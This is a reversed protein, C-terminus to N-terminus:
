GSTQAECEKLRKPSAFETIENETACLRLGAKRSAELIRDQEQAREFNWGTNLLWEFSVESYLGELEKVTKAAEDLKGLEALSAAKWVLMSPSAETSAAGRDVADVAEQYRGTFFLNTVCDSYYWDPPTPNLRFSRDCMEAGEEPKGLFAMTDAAMNLIDASSPNLELARNTETMAEANKGLTGLTWALLIHANADYPDLRIATRALQEMEVSAENWNRRYKSLEQVLWAKQVYARAFNPDRAIAREAYEIGELTGAETGNLFSNYALVTLDYAQLDEPLKRRAAAQMDTLLLDSGAVASATHEAVESQVAFIDEAPRDWRDSWVNTGSAVDILQATVRIRDGARQISGELLYRVGLEDGIQRVDTARTRYAELSNRAIIDFDRYRTLDTIIDDTLGEALRGSVADSGLNVFPLVAISPKQTTVVHAPRPWYHYAAAGLGAAVVLVAAAIPIRLRQPITWAREPAETISGDLRVTYSRVPREMNKVHQEGAFDLPLGLKGQLHDFATGSILVGGPQCKQELRAAINVADGLLDDGDVVVDGLNVGIRLVLLRAPSAGPEPESALEKQVAVACAVADVVSGFEVLVGDGMSKVVRGSHTAVLPDVIEARLAKVAALTAAEDVQILHSYGVVDAVMIASLRREIRATEM